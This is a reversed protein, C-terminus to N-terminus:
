FLRPLRNLFFFFEYLTERVIFLLIKSVYIYHPLVDARLSSSPFLYWILPLCLLDLILESCQPFEPVPSLGPSVSPAPFPSTWLSFAHFFHYKLHTGPSPHPLSFCVVAPKKSSSGSHSSSALFSAAPSNWVSLGMQWRPQMAPVLTPSFQPWWSGVVLVPGPASSLSSTSFGARLILWLWSPSPLHTPYSPRRMWEGWKQM